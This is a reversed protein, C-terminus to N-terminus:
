LCIHNRGKVYKPTAISEPNSVGIEPLLAFAGLLGIEACAATARFAWKGMSYLTKSSIKLRTRVNVRLPRPQTKLKEALILKDQELKAIKAECAAIVTRNESEILRALLAVIQKDHEAIKRKSQATHEKVRSFRNDWIDAFMARAAGILSASPTLDRVLEGFAAEVEDRRVSKRYSECGKHFCM